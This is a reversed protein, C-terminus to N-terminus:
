SYVWEIQNLANIVAANAAFVFLTLSIGSIFVLHAAFKMSLGTDESPTISTFSTLYPTCPSPQNHKSSGVGEMWYYVPTMSCLIPLFLSVSFIRATLQFVDSKIGRCSAFEHNYVM